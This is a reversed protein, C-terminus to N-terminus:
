GRMQGLEREIQALEGEIEKRRKGSFFGRLNRLEEELATKRGVLQRIRESRRIGDQVIAIDSDAKEYGGQKARGLWLLAEEPKKEFYFKVM